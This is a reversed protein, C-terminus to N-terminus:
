NIVVIKHETNRTKEADACPCQTFLNEMGRRPITSELSNLLAKPVTTLNNALMDGAQPIHNSCGNLPMQDTCKYM